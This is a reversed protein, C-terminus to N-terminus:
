NTNAYGMLDNLPPKKKNRAKQTFDPVKFYSKPKGSNAILEEKMRIEECLRDLETLEMKVIREKHQKVESHYGDVMSRVSHLSKASSNRATRALQSAQTGQAATVGHDMLIKM